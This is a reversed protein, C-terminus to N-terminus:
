KIRTEAEDPDSWIRIRLGRRYRIRKAFRRATTTSGNPALVIAERAGATLMAKMADQCALVGVQGDVVKVVLNRGDPSTALLDLEPDSSPSHSYGHKQLAVRMRRLVDERASLTTARRERPPNPQWASGAPIGPLDLLGHSEQESLIEYSLPIILLWILAIATTSSAPIVAALVLIVTLLVVVALVGFIQKTRPQIAVSNM